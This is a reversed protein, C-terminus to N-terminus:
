NASPPEIHDIVYYPVPGTERQLRLGLQEKLATFLSPLDRDGPALSEPNSSLQQPLFSLTFDYSGSLGTKDIVPRGDAELVQGLYWCLYRLDVRKGVAHQPPGNMPIAFDEASTNPKM